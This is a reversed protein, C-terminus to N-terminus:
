FPFSILGYLVCRLSLFTEDDRSGGRDASFPRWQLGAGKEFTAPAQPCRGWPRARLAARALCVRIGVGAGAWGAWFPPGPWAGGLGAAGEPLAPVAARGCLGLRQPVRGSNRRREAPSLRQLAAARVLAGEEGQQGPRSQPGERRNHAGSLTM